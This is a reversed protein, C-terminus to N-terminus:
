EIGLETRFAKGVDCYPQKAGTIKEAEFRYIPPGAGSEDPDILKYYYFEVEDPEHPNKGVAREAYILMARSGAAPKPYVLRVDRWMCTEDGEGAIRDFSVKSWGIGGPVERRIAFQFRLRTLGGFIPRKRFRAAIDPLGDANLDVRNIGDALPVHHWPSEQSQGAAPAALLVVAALTAVAAIASSHKFCGGRM